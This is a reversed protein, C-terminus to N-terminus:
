LTQLLKDTNQIKWRLVMKEAEQIPYHKGNIIGFPEGNIFVIIPNGLENLNSSHPDIEDSAGEEQEPPAVDSVLRKILEPEKWGGFPNKSYKVRYLARLEPITKHALDKGTIIHPLISEM